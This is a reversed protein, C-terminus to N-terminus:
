LDLALVISGDGPVKYYGPKGDVAVIIAEYPIDQGVFLPKPPTGPLASVVTKSLKPPLARGYEPTVGAIFTGAIGASTSAGPLSPLAASPLPRGESATPPADPTPQPAETDTGGAATGALAISLM